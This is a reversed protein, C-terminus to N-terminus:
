ASELRQIAVDIVRTGDRLSESYFRAAEKEHKLRQDLFGPTSEELARRIGEGHMAIKFMVERISKLEKWIALLEAKDM